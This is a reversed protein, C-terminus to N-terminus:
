AYKKCIKQMNKAYKQQMHMNKAYLKCIIQMNAINFDIYHCIKHMNKAYKKQMNSAYKYCIKLASTRWVKIVVAPRSSDLTVGCPRWRKCITHMNRCILHMNLAYKHM